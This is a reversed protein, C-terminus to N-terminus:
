EFEIQEPLVPYEPIWFRITWNKCSQSRAQIEEMKGGQHRKVRKWAEFCRSDEFRWTYSMDHEQESFQWFRVTQFLFGSPGTKGSEDFKTVLLFSLRKTTHDIKQTRSIPFCYEPRVRKERVLDRRIWVLCGGSPHPDPVRPNDLKPIAWLQEFIEESMNRM